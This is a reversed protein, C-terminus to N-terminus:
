VTSSDRKIPLSEKSTIVFLLDRLFKKWEEVPNEYVSGREDYM